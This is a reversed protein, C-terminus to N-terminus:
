HTPNNQPPPISQYGGSVGEMTLLQDNDDGLNIAGNDFEFATELVVRIGNKSVAVVGADGTEDSFVYSYGGDKQQKDVQIKSFDLNPFFTHLGREMAPSLQENHSAGLELKEVNYNKDHIGGSATATYYDTDMKEATEVVKSGLVAGGGIATAFIAARGLKSSGLKDLFGSSEKQEKTVQEEEFNPGENSM